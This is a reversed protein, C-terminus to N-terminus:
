KSTITNHVPIKEMPPSPNHNTQSSSSSEEEEEEAAEIQQFPGINKHSPTEKNTIEGNETQAMANPFPNVQWSLFM